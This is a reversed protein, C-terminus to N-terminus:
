NASWIAANLATAYETADSVVYSTAGAPEALAPVFLAGVLAVLLTFRPIQRM